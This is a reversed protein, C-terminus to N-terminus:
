SREADLKKRQPPLRKIGLQELADAAARVRELGRGITIAGPPGGSSKGTYGGLEAIWITAQGITPMTNPVQETRKKEKRKLLILANIEYRSLEVSAPLQPSQRSLYKLREIRMANAALITAWKIVHERDHLQTDEVNCGGRKWARHFDEIRWRQAYGYIVLCAKDFTDISHNTLLCWDLRKEGQPTTGEEVALVVNVALDRGRMRLTITGARVVMNATRATRKPGAGVELNYSGVPTNQLLTERLYRPSAADDARLRRDHASRVTYWHGSEELRHLVSWSDGERDLQYWLVLPVATNCVALCCQDIAQLWYRTEKDQVDRARRSKKNKPGRAWWMQTLLGLPLGQPSVALGNIMKLGRAGRERSGISGFNKSRGHDKLNLSSGDVPAFVFPFAEARIVCALVVACLIAAATVDKSELFDYAAQREAASSVVQSVRGAPRLAVRMAISVLRRARSGHGLEAQGFEDEAWDRAELAANWKGMPRFRELDSYIGTL